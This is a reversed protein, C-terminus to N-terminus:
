DAYSVLVRDETHDQVYRNLLQRTVWHNASKAFRTPRTASGQHLRGVCLYTLECRLDPVPVHQPYQTLATQWQVLSGGERVRGRRVEM